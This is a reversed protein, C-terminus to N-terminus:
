ERTVLTLKSWLFLRLIREGGDDDKESARLVRSGICYFVPHCDTGQDVDFVAFLRLPDGRRSQRTGWVHRQAVANHPHRVFRRRYPHHSSRRWDRGPSRLPKRPPIRRGWKHTNITLISRILNAPHGALSLHATGDLKTLDFVSRQSLPKAANHLNRACQPMGRAASAPFHRCILGSYFRQIAEVAV